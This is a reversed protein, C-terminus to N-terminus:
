CYLCTLFVAAPGSHIVDTVQYGVAGAVLPVFPAHLGIEYPGRLSPAQGLGASNHCRIGYFFTFIGSKKRLSHPHRLPVRVSDYLVDFSVSVTVDLALLMRRWWPMSLVLGIPHFNHLLKGFFSIAISMKTKGGRTVHSDLVILVPRLM